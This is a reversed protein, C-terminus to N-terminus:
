FLIHFGTNIHNKPLLYLIGNGKRKGSLYKKIKIKKGEGVVVAYRQGKEIANRIGLSIQQLLLSSVRRNGVKDLVVELKDHSL